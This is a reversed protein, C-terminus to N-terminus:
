FTHKEVFIEAIETNNFTIYLIHIYQKKINHKCLFFHSKEDVNVNQM